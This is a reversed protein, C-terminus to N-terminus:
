VAFAGVHRFDVSGFVSDNFAVASIYTQHWLLDDHQILKCLHVRLSRDVM